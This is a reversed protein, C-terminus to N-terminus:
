DYFKRNGTEGFVEHRIVPMLHEATIALRAELSNDVVIRGKHCSMIVGGLSKEMWREEDIVIKVEIVGSLEKFKSISKPLVKRVIEVDEKRCRLGAELDKKGEEKVLDSFLRCLCQVILDEVLKTYTESDLKGLKELALNIIEDVVVQRSHLVQLRTKNIQSSQAIKRKVEAQKLKKGFLSEITATEQRVLKAKEINFEEDAKIQIERAKENAEQMIFAVMKKIELNADDESLPM